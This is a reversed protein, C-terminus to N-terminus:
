AVGKLGSLLSGVGVNVILHWGASWAMAYLYKPSFVTWIFLHTRLATCSAMVALLATSIFLTMHCIYESWTGVGEKHASTSMKKGPGMMSRLSAEQLQKREADIWCKGGKGSKAALPRSAAFISRRSNDQNGSLLLNAASCWWIAGTWNSAFLLIGVALINYDGVGNYANSLDISSISNSGGACFFTVHSFLLVTTAIATTQRGKKKTTSSSFLIYALAERQLEWGLFLIVNPARTQMILFLSLLTHLREALSPLLGAEKVGSRISQRHSLVALTVIVVTTVALMSFSFRAQTALDTNKTWQRVESGLGQVLEPADAQTFNLKFVIGCLVCVVAAAVGVETVLLGAFTRTVLLYGEYYYTALILFWMLVHNEPFATHVIDPAGSHKQGTQNWRVSLRHVILLTFAAAALRAKSAFTAFNPLSQISLTLIWGPTLWYWFHQEEEVYSSAFMMSGYLLTITTFFVGAASPPWFKQPFASLSMLIVFSTMAMGVVMRPINYSSATGSLEDQAALLFAMLRSQSEQLLHDPTKGPKITLHIKATAWLCALKNQGKAEECMKGWRQMDELSKSTTILTEVISITEEWSKEGYTAKVIELMQEANRKLHWLRDEENGLTAMEPISVGLSNRSIPLGMLGALTPVVDSQEVKTYYHFETGDMPLTPCEYQKRKKVHRFKPSAFLLAPETEGPGSGGHNGGANMGHDGALVLLTDTHHQENEMAGFILEVIGDMEKQKPLMNPGVPGTKHGIHDLGLYHMILANWDDQALAGPM